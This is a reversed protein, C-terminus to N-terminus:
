ATVADTSYVAARAAVSVMPRLQLPLFEFITSGKWAVAPYDGCYVNIASAALCFLSQIIGSELSLDTGRFSLFSSMAM